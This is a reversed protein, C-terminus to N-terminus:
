QTKRVVICVNFEM